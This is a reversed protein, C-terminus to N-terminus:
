AHAARERAPAAQQGCQACEGYLVVAHGQVTFGEPASGEIGPVCGDIGFVGDCCRCRFHHHHPRGALEYRSAEGPLDVCALWGEEVLANVTRYVTTLGLRPVFLQAAQLIETPSLARPTEEMVQRIAARQATRRAM